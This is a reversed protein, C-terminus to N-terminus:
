ILSVWEILNNDADRKRDIAVQGTVLELLVVGYAYVDSAPTLQRTLYYEPDLYRCPAVATHASLSHKSSLELFVHFM